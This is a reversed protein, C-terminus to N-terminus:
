IYGPQLVSVIYNSPIKTSKVTEISEHLHPQFIVNKKNEIKIDLKSFANLLSKLTLNIGQIIHNNNINKKHAINLIENLDDAISIIKKSFIISQREKINQIEKENNKKINEIKAQSRLEFDIIEKEINYLTIELDYKKKNKEEIKKDPTYDLSQDDM